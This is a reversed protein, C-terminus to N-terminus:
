NMRSLRLQNVPGTFAIFQRRLQGKSPDRQTSNVDSIQEELIKGAMSALQAMLVTGSTPTLICQVSVPLRKLFIQAFLVGDLQTSELINQLRRLSQSPSSDDVLENSLLRELHKCDSTTTRNIITNWLQKYPSDADASELIDMLDTSIESPLM